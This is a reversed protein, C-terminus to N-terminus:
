SCSGCILSDGNQWVGLRWACCVRRHSRRAHDLPWSGDAPVVPLSTMWSSSETIKLWRFLLVALRLAAAGGARLGRDPLLLLLRIETLVTEISVCPAGIRSPTWRCNTPCQDRSASRLGGADCESVNTKNSQSRKLVLRRSWKSWIASRMCEM